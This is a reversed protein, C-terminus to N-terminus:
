ITRLWEITKQYDEPSLEAGLFPRGLKKCAGFFAGSGFTPDVCIMNGWTHRELLEKLMDANKQALHRRNRPMPYPLVNTNTDRFLRPSGKECVFFPEYVNMIVRKPDNQSGGKDTKFWIGPVPNVKFGEGIKVTKNLTELAFKVKNYFQIGFWVIAYRDNRLIRYIESVMPKFVTDLTKASDDWNEYNRWRDYDDLDIGWPTDLHVFDVSATQITKLWAVGDGCYLRNAYDDKVQVPQASVERKIEELKRTTNLANYAGMVSSTKLLEKRGENKVADAVALSMTVHSRSVGIADAIEKNTVTVEDPRITTKAEETKIELLLDKMKDIFLADEGSTFDKRFKNEAVELELKERATLNNYIIFPCMGPPYKRPNPQGDIEDPLDHGIGMGQQMLTAVAALRRGGFVIENGKATDISPPELLGDRKISEILSQFSSNEKKSRESDGYEKRIRDGLKIETLPLIIVKM